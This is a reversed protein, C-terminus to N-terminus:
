AHVPCQLSAAAAPVEAMWVAGDAPHTALSDVAGLMGATTILAFALALLHFRPQRAFM